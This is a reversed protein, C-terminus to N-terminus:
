KTRKRAREESDSEDTYAAYRLAQFVPAQLANQASIRKHPDAFLMHGVCDFVGALERQVVNKQEEQIHGLIGSYHARDMPTWWSDKCCLLQYASLGLSWMDVKNTYSAPRADFDSPHKVYNRLRMVEPALYRITGRRHDYCESCFEATGFDALVAHPPDRRVLLINCPKVDRHMLRVSHIFDLAQLIQSLIEVRVKFDVTLADDSTPLVETAMPTYVLFVEDVDGPEM